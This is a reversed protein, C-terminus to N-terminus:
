FLEAPDTNRVKQLSLVSSITCMLITLIFVFVAMSFNLNMPIRALLRVINFVIFSFFLSPFYGMLAYLFAQKIGINYIFQDSFGMAKLTAFENLRVSIDTNLVQFLIVVGVIFAIIVGIKFIIGVPKISIFYDQEQKIMEKKTMIIVDNPLIKKLRDKIALIDTGPRALLFGYNTNAPNSMTLRSFNDMSVIICGEEFLTVGLKFQGTITVAKNNIEVEKGVSLDGYDPHSYLDVMITNNQRLKGLNEVIIPNNILKPNLSLGFIITKCTSEKDPDRYFGRLIKLNSIAEIEPLVMAQTLRMKNFFDPAGMFKYRESVIGIDYDFLNYLSGAGTKAAQLFGLQMFVLIISFTIGSVAVFTRKKNHFINNRAVPITM